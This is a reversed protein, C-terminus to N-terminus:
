TVMGQLGNGILELAHGCHHFSKESTRWEDYCHMKRLRATHDSYEDKGTILDDDAHTGVMGVLSHDDDRFIFLAPRLKSQEARRQSMITDRHELSWMMRANDLVYVSTKTNVITDEPLAPWGHEPVARLYGRHARLLVVRDACLYRRNVFAFDVGGQELPFDNYLAAMQLITASAEMIRTMHTEVEGHLLQPDKCGPLVGRSKEILPHEAFSRDGRTAADKDARVM